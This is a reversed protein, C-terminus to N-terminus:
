AIIEGQADMVIPEGDADIFTRTGQQPDFLDAEQLGWRALYQAMVQAYVEDEWQAFVVDEINQAESEPARFGIKTVSEEVDEPAEISLEYNQRIL